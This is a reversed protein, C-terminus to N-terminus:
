EEEDKGQFQLYDNQQEDVDDSSPPIYEPKFKINKEQYAVKKYTESDLFELETTVEEGAGQSVIRAAKKGVNSCQVCTKTNPLVDLRMPHIQQGCRRCNVEM